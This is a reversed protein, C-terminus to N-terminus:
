YRRVQKISAVIGAATSSLFLLAIRRISLTDAEFITLKGSLGILATAGFITLTTIFRRKFCRRSSFYAVGFAIIISLVNIIKQALLIDILERSVLLSILFCLFISIIIYMTAGLIAKQTLSSTRNEISM